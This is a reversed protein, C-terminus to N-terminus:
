RFPDFGVPDKTGFVSNVMKQVEANVLVPSSSAERDLVISQAAPAERTNPYPGNIVELVLKGAQGSSVTTRVAGVIADGLILMRLDVCAAM